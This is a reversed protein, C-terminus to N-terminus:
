RGERGNKLRVSSDTWFPQGPINGPMNRRHIRGALALSLRRGYSEDPDVIALTGDM